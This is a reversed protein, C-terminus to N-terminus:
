GKLIGEGRENSRSHRLDIPIAITIKYIDHLGVKRSTGISQHVATRADLGRAHTHEYAHKSRSGLSKFYMKDSDVNANDM